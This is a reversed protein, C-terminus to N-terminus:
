KKNNINTLCFIKGKDEQNDLINKMQEYDIMVKLKGSGEISYKMGRDLLTSLFLYLNIDLDKQEPYPPKPLLDSSNYDEEKLERFRIASKNNDEAKEWEERMEDFTKPKENHWDRYLCFRFITTDRFDYTDCLYYSDEGNSKGNYIVHNRWFFDTSDKRIPYFPDSERHGIYFGPVNNYVFLLNNWLINLMKETNNALEKVNNDEIKEM